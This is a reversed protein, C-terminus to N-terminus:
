SRFRLVLWCESRLNAKPWAIETKEVSAITSAARIAHQATPLAFASRANSNDSLPRKKRDILVEPSCGLSNTGISPALEPNVMIPNCNM